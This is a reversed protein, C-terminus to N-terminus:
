RPRRNWFPPQPLWDAAPARETPRANWTPPPKRTPAEFPRPAIGPAGTPISPRTPPPRWRQTLGDATPRPPEETCPRASWRTRFAGALRDGAARQGRGTHVAEPTIGLSSTARWLLATDGTPDSAAVLLLLQTESPLSASRRRFGDEIRRPVSLVDPLEFGGAMHAPQASRPLELLALPNGRAEAIIRDRV